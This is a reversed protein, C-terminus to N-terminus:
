NAKPKLREALRSFFGKAQESSKEVRMSALRLLRQADTHQPNIKLASELHLQAENFQESEFYINGLYYLAWFGTKAPGSHRAILQQLKTICEAGSKDKHLYESWVANAAIEVSEPDLSAAYNLISVAEATQKMDLKKRGLQLLAQPSQNALNQDIPPPANQEAILESLKRAVSPSAVAVYDSQSVGNTKKPTAAAPSSKPKTVASYIASIRSSSRYQGTVPKQPMEEEHLSKKDEHLSKKAEQPAAVTKVESHPAGRVASQERKLVAPYNTNMLMLLDTSLKTIKPNQLKAFKDSHYKKIWLYYAEELAKAGCAKEVGLVKHIDGAELQTHLDKLQAYIREEEPSEEKRSYPKFEEDGLNADYVISLEGMFPTDSFAIADSIKAFFIDRCVAEINPGSLKILDHLKVDGKCHDWWLMSPDVTEALPFQDRQVPYQEMHHGLQLMLVNFPYHSFVGQNVIQELDVCTTGHAVKAKSDFEFSGDAWALASKVQVDKVTPCLKGDCLELRLTQNQSQLKLVGTAKFRSMLMLLRPVKVAEIFGSLCDKLRYHIVWRNNDLPKFPAAQAFDVEYADRPEQLYADFLDSIDQGQQASTKSPISPSVIKNQLRDEAEAGDKDLFLSPTNTDLVFAARAKKSLDERSGLSSSIRLQSNHNVDSEVYAELNLVLNKAVVGEVFLQPFEKQIAALLVAPDAGFSICKMQPYHNNLLRKEELTPDLFVATVAQLQLQSAVPWLQVLEGKWALASVFVFDYNNRLLLESAQAWVAAHELSALELGNKLISFLASEVVCLVRM